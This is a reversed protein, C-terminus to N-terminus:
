CRWRLQYSGGLRRRRPCCGQVPRLRCCYPISIINMAVTTSMVDNMEVIVDYSMMGCDDM